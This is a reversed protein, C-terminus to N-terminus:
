HAHPSRPPNCGSAEGAAPVGVPSAAVPLAIRAEGLMRACVGPQTRCHCMPPSSTRGAWCHGLDCPQGHHRGSCAAKVLLVGPLRACWTVMASYGVRYERKALVTASWACTTTHTTAALHKGSYNDAPKRLVCQERITASSVDQGRTRILHLIQPIWVLSAASVAYLEMVPEPIARGELRLYARGAIVACRTAAPRVKESFFLRLIRNAVGQLVASRWPHLTELSYPTGGRERLGWPGQSQGTM